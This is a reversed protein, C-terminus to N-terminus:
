NYVIILELELEIGFNQYVKKRAMDVLKLVQSATAHGLNVIFNAHKKSICAGGVRYGKLGAEDLLQGASRGGYDPNKFVCGPSPVKLPQTERKNALIQEKKWNSQGRLRFEAEWLVLKEEQFISHRNGFNCDEKKLTILNGDQGIGKIKTVWESISAEPIGANMVLAGGVTGPIGALFDLEKIGKKNLLCIADEIPLSAQLRFGDEGLEKEAVANKMCIVLGRYGEDPFLINTGNGLIVWPLGLKQAFKMGKKIDGVSEPLLFYDAEGGVQLSTYLNLQEDEEVVGKINKRFYKLENKWNM